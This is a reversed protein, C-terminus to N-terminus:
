ARHLHRALFRLQAPAVSRWYAADHAGPGFSTRPSPRIRATFSRTADYFPDSRGCAVMLPVGRLWAPHAYVDHRDFDAADDFAGAATAGASTFLAPSSVAVARARVRRQGALLLAGYGGMSWGYLGVRSTDLGHRALLPVLEDAVMAGADSGDARRHWYGHDGGDVSALAFPPSGAAVVAQLVSGLRLEDFTSRHDGGRGHLSVVVPLRRRAGVPRAVTWGVRPGPLHQSSFSGSVLEAEEGASGCGALAALGAATGGALLGRRSLTM